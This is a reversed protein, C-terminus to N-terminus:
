SKNPKRRSKKFDDNLKKVSKSVKKGNKNDKDTTLDLSDTSNDIEISHSRLEKIPKQIGLKEYISLTIEQNQPAFADFLDKTTTETLIGQRIQSPYNYNLKGHRTKIKEILEKFVIPNEDYCNKLFSNLVSSSYVQSGVYTGIAATGTTAEQNEKIAIEEASIRLFENLGVAAGLKEAQVHTYDFAAITFNIDKDKLSLKCLKKVLSLGEQLGNKTAWNVKSGEQILPYLQRTIENNNGCFKLVDKRTKEATECKAFFASIINRGAANSARDPCMIEEV